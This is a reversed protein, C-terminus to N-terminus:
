SLCEADALIEGEWKAVIVVARACLPIRLGGDVDVRVADVAGNMWFEYIGDVGTLIGVINNLVSM